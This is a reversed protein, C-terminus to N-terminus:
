RREVEVGLAARHSEEYSLHEIFIFQLPQPTRFDAPCLEKEIICLDLKSIVFTNYICKKGVWDMGM